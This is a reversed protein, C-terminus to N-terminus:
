ISTLIDDKLNNTFVQLIADKELNTLARAAAPLSQGEIQRYKGKISRRYTCQVHAYMSM